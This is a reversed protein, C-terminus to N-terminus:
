KYIHNVSHLCVMRRLRESNSPTRACFLLDQYNFIYSTLYMELVEFEPKQKLIKDSLNKKLALKELGATPVMEVSNSEHRLTHIVARGLNAIVVKQVQYENAEICNLIGTKDNVSSDSFHDVFPDSVNNEFDDGEEDYNDIETEPDDETEQFDDIDEIVDTTTLNNEQQEHYSHQTKRRKVKPAESVFTKMLDSYANDAALYKDNEDSSSYIKSELIQGSNHDFKQIDVERLLTLKLAFSNRYPQIM